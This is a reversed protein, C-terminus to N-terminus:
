RSRQPWDALTNLYRQRIAEIHKPLDAATWDTTPIPPLVVADVRGPRMFTANRPAIEDPNRFVIPVVPVGATLAIRFLGKEFPALERTSSRTGEPSVLLSLGKAVAEEVPKLAEVASATESRDLFVADVLAGLGAWLPNAAAEQKGISTFGRRVLKGAMLVDVNNRHNFIFMAPRQAWLNEEGQVDFTVGCSTFLADLWREIFFDVGRRRRRSVVGVALGGAAAPVMTSLGVINRIRDTTVLKARSQFRLVPWGRRKAVTALGQRPNTPRPHGVLHMLAVDEDGDAYFYSKALDIDHEKAFQQAREAKTEGWIVPGGLGGTLVGDVM